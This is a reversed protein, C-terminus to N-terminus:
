KTLLLEQSNKIENLNKLTTRLQTNARDLKSNNVWFKYCGLRTIRYIELHTLTRAFAHKKAKRIFQHKTYRDLKSEDIIVIGAHDPIPPNDKVKDWISSPMAYYLEAVPNTAREWDKHKSKEVDKKLDAVSIKIEVEILFMSPRIILLDSEGSYNFGYSVNPVCINRTFDFAGGSKTLQLQMKEESWKIKEM